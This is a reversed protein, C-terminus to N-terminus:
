FNYIELIQLYTDQYEEKVFMKFHETPKFCGDADWNGILFVEEKPIEQFVLVEDLGMHKHKKKERSRFRIYNELSCSLSWYLPGYRKKIAEKHALLSEENDMAYDDFLCMGGIGVSGVWCPRNNLHSAFLSCNEWSEKEFNSNEFIPHFYNAHERKVWDPIWHPKYLDIEKSALNVRETLYGNPKLGNECISEGLEKTTIHYGVKDTRVSKLISPIDIDIDHFGTLLTKINGSDIHNQFWGKLMDEAAQKNVHSFKVTEGDLTTSVAHFSKESYYVEYNLIYCSHKFKKNYIKINKDENSEFLSIM